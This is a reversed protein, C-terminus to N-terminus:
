PRWVCVDMGVIALGVVAMITMAALSNTLNILRQMM